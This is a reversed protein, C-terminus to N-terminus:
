RCQRDIAEILNTIVAYRNCKSVPISAFFVRGFHRAQWRFRMGKRGWGRSGVHHLNRANWLRHWFYVLAIIEARVSSAVRRTDLVRENSAETAM